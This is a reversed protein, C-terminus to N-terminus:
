NVDGGVIRNGQMVVYNKTNHRGIPIICTHLGDDIYLDYSGYNYCRKTDASYNPRIYLGKVEVKYIGSEAGYYSVYLEGSSRSYSMRTIVFPQRESINENINQNRDELATRKSQEKRLESEIQSYNHQLKSLSDKENNYAAQLEEIVQHKNVISDGLAENLEKSDSLESKIAFAAEVSIGLLLLLIIVFGFKNKQAKVKLTQAKQSNLEESLRKIEENKQRVVNKYKHINEEEIEETIIAINNYNLVEPLKWSEDSFDLIKTQYKGIKFYNNPISSLTALELSGENLKARLTDLYLNFINYNKDHAIETAKVEGQSDIYLIKGEEIIGTIFDTFFTFLYRASVPYHNHMSMCVGFSDNSSGYVYNFVVFCQKFNGDERRIVSLQRKGKLGRTQELSEKVITKANGLAPFLETKNSQHSFFCFDIM